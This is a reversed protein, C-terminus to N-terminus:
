KTSECLIDKMVALHFVKDKDFNGLVRMHLQNM